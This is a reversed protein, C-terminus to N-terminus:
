NEEVIINEQKNVLLIVREILENVTKNKDIRLEITKLPKYDANNETVKYNVRAKIKKTQGDILIEIKMYDINKSM